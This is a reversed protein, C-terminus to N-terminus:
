SNAAPPHPSTVTMPDTTSAIVPSNMGLPSHSILPPATLGAIQENVATTSLPQSSPQSPHPTIGVDQTGVTAGNSAKGADM